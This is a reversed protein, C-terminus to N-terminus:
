REFAANRAGPGSMVLRDPDDYTLPRMVVGRAITFIAVNAGPELTLTTLILISTHRYRGMLRWSSRLDSLLGSM